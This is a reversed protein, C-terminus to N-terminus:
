QSGGPQPNTVLVTAGTALRLEAAAVDRESRARTIGQRARTLAAQADAVESPTGVGETYRVNAVRATEEALALRQVAVNLQTSASLLRAHVARVEASVAIRLTDRAAIAQARQAEAEQVRAHITGGDLLPMGAVAAVTWRTFQLPSEPSVMTYDGTLTLSLKREGRAATVAADAAQVQWDAAQLEPRDALARAIVEDVVPPVPPAVLDMIAVYQGTAMGLARLLGAHATTIGTDARVVDQRAEEVGVQARLVDFKPAARADLRAQADKLHATAAELAQRAVEREQQSAFLLLFARETDFAVQQRARRAQADVARGADATQRALNQLRGGSYLVQTAGLTTIWIDRSGLTVTAPILPPGLEAVGNTVAYRSDLRVQPRQAALSRAHTAEAQNVREAAERLAPNYAQAQALAEPLTLPVPADEAFVMAAVFVALLIVIVRPSTM